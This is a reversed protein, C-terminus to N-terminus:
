DAQLRRPRVHLCSESGGKKGLAPVRQALGLTLATSAGNDEETVM